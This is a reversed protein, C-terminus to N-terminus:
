GARRRRKHLEVRAYFINPVALVVGLLCLGIIFLKKWLSFQLM